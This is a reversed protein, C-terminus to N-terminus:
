LHRKNNFLLLLYGKMFFMFAKHCCLRPLIFQQRKYLKKSSFCTRNKEVARLDRLYCLMYVADWDKVTGTYVFQKERLSPCWDPYMHSKQSLNIRGYCSYCDTNVLRMEKSLGASDIYCYTNHLFDSLAGPPACATDQHQLSCNKGWGVSPNFTQACKSYGVWCVNLFLQSEMYGVKIDQM